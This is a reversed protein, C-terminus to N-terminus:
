TRRVCSTHSVHSPRTASRPIVLIRAVITMRVSWRFRDRCNFANERGIEFDKGTESVENKLSKFSLM